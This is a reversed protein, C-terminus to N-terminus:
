DWHCCCRASNWLEYCCCCCCCCHWCHAVVTTVVSHLLSSVDCYCCCDDADDGAAAAAVAGAAVETPWPSWLVSNCVPALRWLHWRGGPSADGDVGDAAAVEVDVDIAAAVDDVGAVDNAVVIALLWQWCCFPQWM